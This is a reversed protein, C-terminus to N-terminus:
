SRKAYNKCENIFNLLIPHPKKISSGYEPHFQVGVCRPSFLKNRMKELIDQRVVYNNWYSEGDKLGVNLSPLKKVVFTGKGFEESTADEIGLVNRAYEIAMLQLGACIGLIPKHLKRATEIALIIDETDHPSHTGCVILGEYTPWAPDIEDLAKRVSTSFDNLLIM